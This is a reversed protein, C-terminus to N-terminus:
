IFLGNVIKKLIVDTFFKRPDEVNYLIAQLLKIALDVVEEADMRDSLSFCEDIGRIDCVLTFQSSSEDLWVEAKSNKFLRYETSM